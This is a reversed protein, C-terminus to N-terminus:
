NVGDWDVMIEEKSNTFSEKVKSSMQCTRVGVANVYIYLDTREFFTM